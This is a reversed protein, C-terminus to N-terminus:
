PKEKSPLSGFVDAARRAFGAGGGLARYLSIRSSVLAKKAALLARELQQTKSLAGLVPLYDSLGRSYRKRAAELLKRAAQLQRELKRLHRRQEQERALADEVERIATLLVKAYSYLAEERTAKARDIRAKRALGDFLPAVLSGLISYVFNHFLDSPAAGITGVQAQLRLSPLWDAIAATVRHDAAVARAKAARVDPRRELLDAPLGLKPLPSLDPLTDRTSLAFQMPPVGLLVALQNSLLRINQRVPELLTQVARLQQEQQYVELETALGKLYRARTLELYTQSTQIQARLLREEARQEM